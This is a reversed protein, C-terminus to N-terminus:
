SVNLGEAAEAADPLATGGDGEDGTATDDSFNAAALMGKILSLTRALRSGNASARFSPASRRWNGAPNCQVGSFM